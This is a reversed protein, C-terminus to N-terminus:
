LFRIDYFLIDHWSDVLFVEFNVALDVEIGVRKLNTVLQFVAGRAFLARNTEGPFEM